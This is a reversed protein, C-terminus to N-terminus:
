ETPLVNSRTAEGYLTVRPFTMSVKATNACEAVECSDIFPDKFFFFFARNCSRARLAASGACPYLKLFV